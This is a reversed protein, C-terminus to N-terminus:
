CTNLSDSARSQCAECVMVLTQGTVYLDARLLTKLADFYFLTVCTLSLYGHM